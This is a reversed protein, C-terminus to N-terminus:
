RQLEIAVRVAGDSRRYATEYADAVRDLPFRHTIIGSVDYDGRAILNIAMSFMAPGGVSSFLVTPQKRYLQLFGYDFSERKPIGFFMVEGHARVLAGCMNIAEPEGCAEIVVDAEAGGLAERAQAVADHDGGDVTHTAGYREAVARREASLDLAVIRRAGMRRLVSNWLLGLGGQGIVVASRANVPSLRQAGSIVTALPQAMVMEEAPIDPVPFLNAPRTMFREAMAIHPYIAGLVRDGARLPFAIRSRYEVEEVVGIVEHGSEGIKRPYEGEPMAHLVRLDSGCISILQPRVIAHDIELTPPETDVVDVRDPATIHAAKVSSSHLEVGSTDRM